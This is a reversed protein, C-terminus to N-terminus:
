TIKIENELFGIEDLTKLVPSFFFVRDGGGLVAAYFVPQKAKCGHTVPRRESVGAWM